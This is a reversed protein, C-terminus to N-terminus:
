SVSIKFLLLDGVHSEVEFVGATDAVFDIPVTGGAKEVEGELEYGHVHIEGAKDSTVEIHVPSGLPVDYQKAAPTVKGNAVAATITVTAPTTASASQTPSASSSSPEPSASTPTSSAAASASSSSSSACGAALPVVLVGVMLARSISVM